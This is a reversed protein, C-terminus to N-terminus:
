LWGEGASWGFLAFICLLLLIFMLRWKSMNRRQYNHRAASGCGLRPRALTWCRPWM